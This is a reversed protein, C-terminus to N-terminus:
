LSRIVGLTSCGDMIGAEDLERPVSDLYGLLM